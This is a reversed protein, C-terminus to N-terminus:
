QERESLHDHNLCSDDGEGLASNFAENSRTASAVAERCLAESSFNENDKAALKHRLNGLLDDFSPGSPRGYVLFDRFRAWQEDLYSGRSRAYQRVARRFSHMGRAVVCVDNSQEYFALVRPAYRKLLCNYMNRVQTRELGRGEGLVHNLDSLTRMVHQSQTQSQKSQQSQVVPYNIEDERWVLLVNVFAVLLLFGFLVALLYM